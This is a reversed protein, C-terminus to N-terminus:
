IYRIRHSLFCGRGAQWAVSTGARPVGTGDGVTRGERDGCLHHQAEHVVDDRTGLRGTGHWGLHGVPEGGGDGEDDAAQLGVGGVHSDGRGTPRQEPTRSPKPAKM